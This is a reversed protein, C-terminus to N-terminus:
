RLRRTRRMSTSPKEEPRGKRSTALVEAIPQAVLM